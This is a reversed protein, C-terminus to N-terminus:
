GAEGGTIAYVTLEDAFMKILHIRQKKTWGDMHEKVLECVVSYAEEPEFTKMAFEASFYEAPVKLCQAIWCMRAVRPIQRGIVYNSIRTENIGSIESLERQSIGKEGMIKSLRISFDKSVRM